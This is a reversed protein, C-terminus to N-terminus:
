PVMGRWRAARNPHRHPPPRVAEIQELEAARINMALLLAPLLKRRVRWPIKWQDKAHITLHIEVFGFATGGADWGSYFQPEKECREALFASAKGATEDLHTCPYETPQWLWAYRRSAAV